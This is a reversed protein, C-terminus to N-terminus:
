GQPDLGAQRLRTLLQAIEQEAALRAQREQQAQQEAVRRAQAEVESERFEEGRFWLRVKRGETWHAPTLVELELGPIAESRYRRDPPLPLVEYGQMRADYRHWVVSRPDDPEPYILVFEPVRHAANYHRMRITDKREKAPKSTTVVELTLLLEDATLAKINPNATLAYDPYLARQQNQEAIWYWIPYDGVGRLGAVKAVRDLLGGLSYITRRHADSQAMAFEEDYYPIGDMSEPSHPIPQLRPRRGTGEPEWPLAPQPIALSAM